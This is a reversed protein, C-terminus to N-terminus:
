LMRLLWLSMMPRMVVQLLNIIPPPLPPPPPPLPIIKGNTKDPDQTLDDDMEIANEPAMTVDNTENGGSTSQHYSPPPPPPLPPLPIIKGTTKDPDQTLDDDMEIANEPAM